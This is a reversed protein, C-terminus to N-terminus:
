RCSTVQESDSGPLILHVLQGNDSLAVAEALSGFDPHAALLRTNNLGNCVLPKLTVNSHLLSLSAFGSETLLRIQLCQRQTDIPLGCSAHLVINCAQM